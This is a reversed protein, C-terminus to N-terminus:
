SPARALLRVAVRATRRPSAWALLWLIEMAADVLYTRAIRGRPVHVLDIAALTAATGLGVRRASPLASPTRAAALQTVGNGIMLGAVTQVLWRDTKPGLVREFSRLDLLPWLGGVVNFVGHATALGRGAIRATPDATPHAPGPTDENRRMRM